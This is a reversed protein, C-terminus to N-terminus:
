PRRRWVRAMAGSDQRGSLALMHISPSASFVIRSPTHQGFRPGTSLRSGLRVVNSAIVDTPLTPGCHESWAPGERLGQGDVTLIQSLLESDRFPALTNLVARALEHTSAEELEARDFRTIGYVFANGLFDPSLKPHRTRADVTSRIRVEQASPLLRDICRRLAAITLFAHPSPARAIEGPAFDFEELYEWPLREPRVVECPPLAAPADRRRGTELMRQYEADWADSFLTATKADGAFHSMCASVACGTALPTVVVSYVPDGDNSSHTHRLENLPLCDPPVRAKPCAVSFRPAAAEPQLEYRGGSLRIRSGLRPMGELASFFSARLLDLDPAEDFLGVWEVPARGAYRQEFDSLQIRQTEM